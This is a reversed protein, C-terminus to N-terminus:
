FQSPISFTFLHLDWGVHARLHLLSVLLQNFQHSFAIVLQHLFEELLTRNRFFVQNRRQVIRNSLVLEKGDNKTRSQSVHSGVTYHVKDHVVRRRRGLMLPYLAFGRRRSVSVGRLTM